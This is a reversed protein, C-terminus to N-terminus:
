TAMKLDVEEALKMDIYMRLSSRFINNNRLFLRFNDKM